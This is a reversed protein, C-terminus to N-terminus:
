EGPREWVSERFQEIIRRRERVCVIKRYQEIIREREREREKEREKQRSVERKIVIEKEREKNDKIDIKWKKSKEAFDCYGRGKKEDKTLLGQKRKMIERERKIM